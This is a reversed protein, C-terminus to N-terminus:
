LTENKENKQKLSKSMDTREEFDFIMKGELLKFPWHILFASKTGQGPCLGVNKIEMQLGIIQLFKEGALVM